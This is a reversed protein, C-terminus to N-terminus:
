SFMQGIIVSEGEDAFKVLVAFFFSESFYGDWGKLEPTGTVALTRCEGLDYVQGKYRFFSSYFGGSGAEDWELYDFEAREAVTLEYGYIVPRPVNNTSITIKNDSM